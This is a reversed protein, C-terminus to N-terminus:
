KKVKLFETEAGNQLKSIRFNLTAM